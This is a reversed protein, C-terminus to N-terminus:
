GAIPGLLTEADTARQDAAEKSSKLAVQLPVSPPSDNYPLPDQSLQASLGPDDLDLFEPNINRPPPPRDRSIIPSQYPDHPDFLAPDYLINPLSNSSVTKNSPKNEELESITQSTVSHHM